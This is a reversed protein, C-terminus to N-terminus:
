SSCSNRACEGAARPKRLLNSYRCRNESRSLANIQGSRIKDHISAQYSM